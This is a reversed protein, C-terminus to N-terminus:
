ENLKLKNIPEDSNKDTWFIGLKKLYKEQATSVEWQMIFPLTLLSLRVDRATGIFRSMKKQCLWHLFTHAEVLIFLKKSFKMKLLPPLSNIDFLWILFFIKLDLINHKMYVNCDAIKLIKLLHNKITYNYYTTLQM